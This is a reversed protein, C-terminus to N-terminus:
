LLKNNGLLCWCIRKLKLDKPDDIINNKPGYKEIFEKAMKYFNDDNIHDYLTDTLKEDNIDMYFLSLEEDFQNLKGIIIKDKNTLTHVIKSANVNNKNENYENIINEKLKKLKKVIYEYNISEGSTDNEYNDLLISVIQSPDKIIENNFELRWYYNNEDDKFLAFVGDRNYLKYAGIGRPLKQLYEEGKENIIALLKERPDSNFQELNRSIVNLINEDGSAILKQINGFDKPDADEDLIPADIGLTNKIGCIRTYLKKILKLFHELSKPDEPNSNDPLINIIVVEKYPSGLRDIRGSRQILVVPNWPFDYNVMYQANQLNQGESLVDTSILIGGDSQFKRVVDSVSSSKDNDLCSSGTTLYHLMGINKINEYLMKATDTYQTFIIIGNPKKLDKVINKIRHMLHNLKEDNHPLSSIIYKIINIDESAYKIFEDKEEDSLKCKAKLHIYKDDNLIDIIDDNDLDDDFDKLINDSVIKPLFYGNNAFNIAKELYGIISNMTSEFAAKSSELRKFINLKVVIKILNKLKEKQSKNQDPTLPAGSPTTMTSLKDVTFEYQIFHLKDLDEDLKEFDMDPVYKDAPDKDIVRKPFSSDNSTHIAFERSHRVVFRELVPTMDFSKGNLLLKQNASFYGKLSTGTIDEISNDDAFLSILNYLDMLSTNIPTATGLVIQAHNYLILERLAKYRIASPSKFYHAEDVIFFNYKNKYRDKFKDPNASIYESNVYEIMTDTIEMEKKWTTEIVSKPAILLVKKNNLRAEHALAIMTRTKGLGTSDAIIVGNYNNLIRTAELVSVKQFLKLNMMKIKEASDLDNKFTEYLAKAAIEFPTHTVTYNELFKLFETKYDTAENWKKNFWESLEKLIERDTNEVNLEMNTNLGAYTFNSSGVIAVGYEPEELSPNAGIYTKGHFFPGDRKRIEVDNNKFYDIAEKLLKYYNYNDEQEEIEKVIEEDFTVSEDPPRGVLFKLKKDKLTDKILGFGGINFYASAFYLDDLKRLDKNLIDFMKRKENDIIISM